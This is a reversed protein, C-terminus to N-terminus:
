LKLTKMPITNMGLPINVEYGGGAVDLLLIKEDCSVIKGRLFGIM